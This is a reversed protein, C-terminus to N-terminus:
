PMLTNSSGAKLQDLSKFGKVENKMPKPEGSEPTWEGQEIKYKDVQKRVVAVFPGRAIIEDCNPIVGTKLRDEFGTAKLLQSLSFLAGEFLMVNTFVSRSEYPGDQVKLQLSWYPKGNHKSSTSRRVEWDVICVTYEGTPLPEFSRAESETEQDTFNVRLSSVDFSTDDATDEPLLSDNKKAM